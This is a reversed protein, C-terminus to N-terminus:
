DASPRGVRGAPVAELLAPVRVRYLVFTDTRAIERVFPELRVDGVRAYLTDLLVYQVGYERMLEPFARTVVPALAEFRALNGCHGGWLVSKRANYATYDAYMYPICLVGDGDMSALKEVIRVLGPPASSTQETARRRLYTYFFGIAGLSLALGLLTVLGVPSVLGRLSGIGVALTYATPFVAAKTYSRGPGFARLPPVLTALVSLASLSIAWWYVRPAWPADGIPAMPLALLFPNEGLLRILQQLTNKGLFGPRQGRRAAGDDPTGYIPSGHIPHAGLNARNRRWYRAAEVYNWIVRLYHGGSIVVALVLAGCSVLLYAPNGFILSLSLCVFGYSAAATASSLFVTSGALLALPLWPWVPGFIVERLMLVMAVTHLLAGFSRGNLSRTESILHPTFGYISAAVAAVSISATIKYALWYLLLLQVCDIGPSVMWFRRRLWAHPFLALFSPFLPAYSQVEDQLLYQPLRVRIGPRRRVADAYALYYWTDVGSPARGVHIGVRVLFAVAALSLGIAAWLVFRIEESM